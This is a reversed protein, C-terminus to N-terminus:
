LSEGLLRLVEAQAGNLRPDTEVAPVDEARLRRLRGGMSSDVVGTLAAGFATMFGETVERVEAESADPPLSEFATAFTAYHEHRRVDSLVTALQHLDDPAAEFLRAMLVSADEELGALESQDPGGAADIFASLQPTLDPRARSARLDDVRSLQAQLQAIRQELQAALEDLLEAGAGDAPDELMAAVRELPVGLEALTRIRLLRAVHALDYSRYGNTGRSPEPLVGVQHYHRLTRVTVGALEAVEKSRM